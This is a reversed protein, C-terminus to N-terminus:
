RRWNKPNGWDYGPAQGLEKAQRYTVGDKVVYNEGGRTYEHQMDTKTYNRRKTSLYTWGGRFLKMDCGMDLIRHRNRIGYLNCYSSGVGHM